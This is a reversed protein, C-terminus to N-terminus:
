YNAGDRVIMHLVTETAYTKLQTTEKPSLGDPRPVMDIICFTGATHGEPTVLAAGAYFRVHPPNVVMPHDMFRPDLTTDPVVMVTGYKKVDRKVVHNCFALCRPTQKAPFGQISKFWQRGLDVLSVIALPCNFYKMADKTIIDFDIEDDSDLNNYSKLTMLRDAEAVMDNPNVVSTEVDYQDLRWDNINIDNMANILDSSTVFDNVTRESTPPVVGTSDEEEEKNQQQDVTAASTAATAGDENTIPRPDLLDPSSLPAM